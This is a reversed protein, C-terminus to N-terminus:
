VVAYRVYGAFEEGLDEGNVDQSIRKEYLTRRLTSIRFARDNDWM